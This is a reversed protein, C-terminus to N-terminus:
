RSLHIYCKIVYFIEVLWLSHFECFFLVYTIKKKYFFINEEIRIRNALHIRRSTIHM